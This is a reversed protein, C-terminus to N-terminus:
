FLEFFSFFDSLVVANLSDVGNIFFRIILLLNIIFWWGELFLGVGWGGFFNEAELAVEALTLVLGLSEAVVGVVVEKIGLSTLGFFRRWTSDWLYIGLVHLFHFHLFFSSNSLFPHLEVRRDRYFIVLLFARGFLYIILLLVFQVGAVSWLLLKKWHYIYM